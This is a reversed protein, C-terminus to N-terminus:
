ARVGVKHIKFHEMLNVEVDEFTICNEEIYTDVAATWIPSTLFQLIYEVLWMQIFAKRGM